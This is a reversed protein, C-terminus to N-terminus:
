KIDNGLFDIISSYMVAALQKQYETNCLMASEEPNSLFGCEILVAPTEIRDLIYINSGGPKVARDNDPQLYEKVSSQISNALEISKDSNKSYFVQLGKYKPQSYRNMHISVFISNENELSVAVRNKLDQMKLSGKKYEKYLMRDDVRTYVVNVGGSSLMEGLYLAVDLNLDKEKTGSDSSAGGDEGGHGADIIVTPYPSEYKATEETKNKKGYNFIGWLFVASLSLVITFICFKIIVEGSDKM